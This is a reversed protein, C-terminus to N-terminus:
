PRTEPDKGSLTLLIAVYYCICIGMLDDESPAEHDGKYTAALRAKEFTSTGGFQVINRIFNTIM